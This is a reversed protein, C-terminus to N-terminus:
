PAFDQFYYLSAELAIVCLAALPAVLALAQLYKIPASLRSLQARSTSRWVRKIRALQSVGLEQSAKMERIMPTIVATVATMPYRDCYCAAMGLDRAAIASRLCPELKRWNTSDHFTSLGHQWIAVMLCRPVSRSLRTLILLDPSRRSSCQPRSGWAAVVARGRASGDVGMAGPRGGRTGVS